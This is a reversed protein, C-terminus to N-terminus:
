TRVGKRSNCSHCLTQLNHQDDTGGKSKPIIHDVSLQEPSGCRRCKYGDRKFITNRYPDGSYRRASLIRILRDFVSSKSAGGIPEFEIDEISRMTRIAANLYSICERHLLICRERDENSEVTEFM